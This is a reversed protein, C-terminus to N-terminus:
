CNLPGSNLKTFTEGGRCRTVQVVQVVILSQAVVLSLYVGVVEAELAGGGEVGWSVRGHHLEGRM